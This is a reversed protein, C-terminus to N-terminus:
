DLFRGPTSSKTLTSLTNRDYTVPLNVWLHFNERGILDCLEGTILEVRNELLNTSGLRPQFGDLHSHESFDVAPLDRQPIPHAGELIPDDTTEVDGLRGGALQDRDGPGVRGVEVAKQGVTNREIPNGLECGGTLGVWV